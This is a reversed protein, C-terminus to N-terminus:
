RHRGDVRESRIQGVDGVGWWGRWRCYKTNEIKQYNYVWRGKTAALLWNHGRADEKTMTIIKTAIMDDREGSGYKKTSTYM